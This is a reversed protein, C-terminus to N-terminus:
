HGVYISPDRFDRCDVFAQWPSKFLKGDSYLFSYSDKYIDVDSGLFQHPGNCARGERPMESIESVKRYEVKSQIFCFDM